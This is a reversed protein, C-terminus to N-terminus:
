SGAEKAVVVKAARLVRDHLKYGRELEQVVTGPPQDKSEVQMLAEHQTPDFPKGLAEIPEVRHDALTKKLLDYVLRVGHIVPDNQHREDLNDLTREFNDLVPLLAKIFAANAYRVVAEKEETLRRAINRAEAQARLCRDRWDKLETRLTEPDAEPPPTPEAPPAEPPAAGPSENRAGAGPAEASAAAPSESPSGEPEAGASAGYLAVEEPSPIAIRSEKAAM